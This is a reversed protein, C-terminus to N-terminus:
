AVKRRLALAGLGLVMFAITSPEPVVRPGAFNYWQVPNGSSTALVANTSSVISSLDAAMTWTGYSTPSVPTQGLAPGLLSIDYPTSPTLGLAGCIPGTCQFTGVPIHFTPTAWLIQNGSLTGTGALATVTVDTSITGLAGLNNTGVVKYVGGFLAIDGETGDNNADTQITVYSYSSLPAVVVSTGVTTVTGTGTLNYEILAASSTGAFALVAALAAVMAIIRKM